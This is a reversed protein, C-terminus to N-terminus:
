KEGFFLFGSATSHNALNLNRSDSFVLDLYKTPLFIWGFIVSFLKYLFDNGFSCLIAFCNRLVENLTSFAGPGVLLHQEKFNAFLERVGVLTYRFYDEPSKHYSAMFPLWAAVRGGQQLVRYIEQSVRFPNRVHELVANIHIGAVSNDKFPLSHADAVVNVGAYFALDLAIFDDRIKNDAAGIDIFLGSIKKNDYFDLSLKRQKTFIGASPPLKIRKSDM